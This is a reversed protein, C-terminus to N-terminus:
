PLRSSSGSNTSLDDQPRRACVLPWANNFSPVRARPHLCVTGNPTDSIEAIKKYSLGELERMILAERSELPLENVARQLLEANGEKLLLREPDPDRSEIAEVQDESAIAGSLHPLTVEEFNPFKNV